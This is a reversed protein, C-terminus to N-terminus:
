SVIQAAYAPAAPMVNINNNVAASSSSSAAASASAGGWESYGCCKHYLWAGGCCFIVAFVIVSILGGSVSSGDDPVEDENLTVWIYTEVINVWGEEPLEAEVRVATTTVPPLFSALVYVSSDYGADASTVVQPVFEESSSSSEEYRSSVVLPIAETVNTFHLHVEAVERAEGFTYTIYCPTDETAECSWRSQTVDTGLADHSLDPTCGDRYCGGELLPREDYSSAEATLSTVDEIPGTDCTATPLLWFAVSTALGVGIKAKM